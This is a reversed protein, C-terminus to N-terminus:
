RSGSRTGIEVVLKGRRSRAIKGSYAEAAKGLPIAVDVVAKLRGSDVLGGIEELQKGKAEVIFFAAKVREDTSNEAGSVITVMRGRASLVSWSRELTEGGVTDFIVDVKGVQSEFPAGRYDLTREAGLGAVFDLDRASATASVQAGRWHALQIAFVGVAGAGGHVLVREGPELRARDFLGQWATLGSIPVSAAEVHTLRRPKRAIGSAAGICYEALAGEQFWDNMGFVEAGAELGEVGAGVGEVVGSFEHAPVAGTRIEGGKTHSTPYWELETTTVGAAHVRILVEGAGPQPIPATGEILVPGQPSDSVRMIKM